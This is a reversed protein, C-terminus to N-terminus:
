KSANELIEQETIKRFAFKYGEYIAIGYFLLDIPGSSEILIGPVLSYDVIGLTEFYGLGEADAVFGVISLVNGLICGLLALVAGIIGFIQDIGKGLYRVTFGVILGVAIAMYGIQYNTAVTIAAWLAGSVIMAVLGGLIGMLLNQDLKIKEMYQDLKAQDISANAQTEINETEQEM